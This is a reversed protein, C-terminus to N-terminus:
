TKAAGAHADHSLDVGYAVAPGKIGKYCLDSGRGRDDPGLVRFLAFIGRKYDDIQVRM